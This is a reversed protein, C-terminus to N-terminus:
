KDNTIVKRMNIERERREKVNSYLDSTDSPIDNKRSRLFGEISDFIYCLRFVRRWYESFLMRAEDTYWLIRYNTMFKGDCNM